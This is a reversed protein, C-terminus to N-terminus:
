RSNTPHPADWTQKLTHLVFANIPVGRGRASERIRQAEESDCRVLVATRPTGSTPRRSTLLGDVEARRSELSGEVQIKRLLVQLVYASITRRQRAAKIRIEQAEDIDCRILLATRSM